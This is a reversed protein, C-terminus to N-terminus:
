ILCQKRCKECITGGMKEILPAHCCPSVECDKNEEFGLLSKILVFGALAFVLIVLGALGIVVWWFPSM